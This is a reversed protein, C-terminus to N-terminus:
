ANFSEVPLEKEHIAQLAPLHISVTTGQRLISRVTVSGGHELMVRRALSFGLGIGGPRKSFFPEGLRRVDDESLGIGADAISTVVYDEDSASEATITVTGGAPMAQFANRVLNTFAQHLLDRDGRIWLPESPVTLKVSSRAPASSASSIQAVGQLLEVLDLRTLKMRLPTGLRLVGEVAQNLRDAEEILVTIHRYTSPDSVRAALMEAAGRIIGLPNRVEHALQGALEGLAAMQSVRQVREEMLALEALRDTLQTQTERLEENTNTLTSALTQYRLRQDRESKAFFYTLLGAMTFYVLAAVSDQFEKVSLISATLQEGSVIFGIMALVSGGVVVAVDRGPLKTAASIIPLLYVLEYISGSGDTVAVLISALLLQLVISLRLLLLRRAPNKAKESFSPALMEVGQLLMIASFSLYAGLSTPRTVSGLSFLLVALLALTAAKLIDFANLYGFAMAFRDKQIIPFTL